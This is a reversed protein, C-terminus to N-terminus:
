LDLECLHYTVLFRSGRRAMVIDVVIYRSLM